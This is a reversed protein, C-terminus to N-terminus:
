FTTTCIYTLATSYYGAAQSGSVNSIYSVTYTNANTVTSTSAVTDGTVFRYQNATGYNATPAGNGTGNVNAGVGPVTNLKLNIGFQSSNTTSATQSALAAITNAGSTLTSGNVTIVYGSQGNTSAAMVSTGSSTTSPSGNPLAVIAGSVTTCDQGTITTGACFTLSEPNTFTVQIQSATSGAVGAADTAGTAGDTGTYTTIRVYFTSNPTSPNVISGLTISVATGSNLNAATRTVYPSGATANNITFGTAGNQATITAGTTSLGAPTSCAGSATTCYQFDISGINATTATTFSFQHTTTASAASSGLTLSRVTLQATAKAGFPVLVVIVLAVVLLYNLWIGVARGM